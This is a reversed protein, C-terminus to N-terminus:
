NPHLNQERRSGETQFLALHVLNTLALRSIVENLPREKEAGLLRRFEVMTGIVDDMNDNRNSM